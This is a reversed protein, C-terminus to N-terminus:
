RGATRREEVDTSWQWRVRYCHYLKPRDHEITLRGDADFEYDTTTFPHPADVSRLVELWAQRGRRLRQPIVVEFLIRHTPDHTTSSLFPSSHQWDLMAPWCVEFEYEDGTNLSRDFFITMWTPDGALPTPNIDVHVVNSGPQPKLDKDQGTWKFRDAYSVLHDQMARVRYHRSYHLEGDETVVYRNIRRVIEFRPDCPPYSSDYIPSRRLAKRTAAVQRIALTLAAGGAAALPWRGDGLRRWGDGSNTLSAAVTGASILWTMLVGIAWQLGAQGIWDRLKLKM